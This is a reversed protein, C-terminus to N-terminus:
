GITIRALAADDNGGSTADTGKYGAVIVLKRDASLAIGFWADAPGGLDSILAGDTGFTKDPAGDKSLLVIMGDINAATKKGSGATMIRGDPLVLVNHARDDDKAIDLRFKGGDGFATDLTGNGKFRYAVLDVKDTAADSGYGAAIYDSGQQAVNYAETVANLVKATAVGDKGFEKDLVGASSMRILVPQVVGAINSYGSTVIKGDAQVLVNRANDLSSTLDVVVKGGQGFATDLKGDATVGIIAYDADTRGAGTALTTGNVVLKDGTLNGVGWPNDGVIATGVLKGVGLDIKAVGNTGFSPDLKGTNDFRALGFDTDRAADGAATPDHEVPGAIVIKGSSQIVLSRALEAAKGGIAVNVSAIGDKGFTKDLAGKADFRALAMAQDGAETVFGAAYTKGDPAVAVAMFRDHGAASLPLAAIGDKGFTTDLGAKAAAAPATTAAAAGTGAATTATSKAAPPASTCGALILTAASLAVAVHTRITVM